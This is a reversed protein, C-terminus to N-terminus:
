NKIMHKIKEYRVANESIIRQVTKGDVCSVPLGKEKMEELYESDRCVDMFAKRLIEVREKPVNQGVAASKIISYAFQTFEVYERQEETKAFEYLTPVDPFMMNRKVSGYQIIPKAIGSVLDYNTIKLLSYSTAYSTIENRQLALEVEQKTKYGYILNLKYGLINKLVPGAEMTKTSSTDGYIMNSFDSLLNIDKRSYVLQVDDTGDSVAGIWNLTTSDYKIENADKMIGRIPVSVIPFVITTGDQNSETAIMNTGAIGAAAPVNKFVVSPNGPIYKPLYKGMIRTNLEFGTTPSIISAIIIKLEKGEYFDKSYVSTNIMYLFIFAITRIM